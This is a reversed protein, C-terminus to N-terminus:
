SGVFERGGAPCSLPPGGDADIAAGKHSGGAEQPTRPPSSGTANRYILKSPNTGPENPEIPVRFYAGM